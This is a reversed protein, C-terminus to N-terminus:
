RTTPQQGLRTRAPQPSVSPPRPGAGLRVAGREALVVGLAFRTGARHRDMLAAVRRRVTRLSVGLHRAIAEDKAGRALLSVILEDQDRRHTARPLDLGQGWAGEFLAVLAAVAAPDRLVRAGRSIPFGVTDGVVVMTAPVFVGLRQEEGTAARARLVRIHFPSSLVDIPLLLRRSGSGVADGIQPLAADVVDWDALSAVCAWARRHTPDADPSAGSGAVEPDGPGVGGRDSTVTPM